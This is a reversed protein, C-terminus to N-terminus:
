KGRMEEVIEALESRASSPFYEIKYRLLVSEGRDDQRLLGYIEKKQRFFKLVLGVISLLFGAMLIGGGKEDTVIFRGYYAIDAYRLRNGGDFEVFDATTALNGSALPVRNKVVQVSFMPKELQYSRTFFRGNRDIDYDPWFRVRVEYGGPIRFSDEGGRIVHLSVHSAFLERGNRDTVVIYPAIDIDNILISTSGFTAPRNVDLWREEPAGGSTATVKTRLSIPEYGAFRPEIRDVTYAILPLETRLDSWRFIQRYEGRSGGFSQGETIFTEGWFRTHFIILGGALFLLFSLHFLLSGVVSFRNKAGAFAGDKKHIKFGRRTLMDCAASFAERGGHVVAHTGESLLKESVRDASPGKLEELAKPLRKGTVILLHLFFSVTVAVVLPSSFISTLQLTEFLEVLRPWGAKWRAYEEVTVIKEQPIVLGLFYVICLVIIHSITSGRGLYIRIAKNIIERM